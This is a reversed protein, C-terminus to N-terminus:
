RGTERLTNELASAYWKAREEFETHDIAGTQLFARVTKADPIGARGGLRTVKIASVANAWRACERADWGQLLGYIFAGHFVDGAGTTDVVPVDFAPEAFFVGDPGLGACGKEGFTFLVIGPGKEQIERCCIEVDRGESVENFFFESAIFVDMMALRDMIAEDYQDADIVVKGGAKRVIDMAQAFVGHAGPVHLYKAQRLYAADLESVLPAGGGQWIISRGKTERESIVLSLSTHAGAARTLRSVDVNHRKFDWEVADGYLDGGVNAIMGCRVGLRALAILATAVKGGGQWSAELFRASCNSAPMSQLNVLLDMCPSDIGIVDIPNSANRM